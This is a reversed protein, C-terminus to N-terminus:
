GLSRDVGGKHVVGSCSNQRAGTVSSFCNIQENVRLVGLFAFILAEKYEIIEEKPIKVKFSNMEKIRQILFNNFAGGGTILLSDKNNQFPIANKIQYAIHETVTRLKDRININNYKEIIPKFNNEYWERGLSKPPTKKYFELNNLENYLEQHFKGLSANRGKNDYNLGLQDALENLAYNAPVIDFAIRKNNDKYSINCFGGINLCYKHESFLFEDGTPALPAGEGGYAIDANRFDAVTVLKTLAAINAGDGIQLSYGNQPTHFITHGHSAILNPELDHDKIFQAVKEGIWKGYKKDLELLKEPEFSPADNLKKKWAKGYPISTTTQFDFDWRKGDYIFECFAIDLADLSTGSMIGIATIKDKM